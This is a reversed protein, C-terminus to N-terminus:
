YSSSTAFSTKRVLTSLLLLKHACVYTNLICNPLDMTDTLCLATKAEGSPGVVEGTMFKQGVRGSM